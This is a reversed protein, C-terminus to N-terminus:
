TQHPTATATVQSAARGALPGQSYVLAGYRSFGRPSPPGLVACVCPADCVCGSPALAARLAVDGYLVRVVPRPNM